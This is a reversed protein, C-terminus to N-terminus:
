KERTRMWLQCENGAVIQEHKASYNLKVNNDSQALGEILHLRGLVECLEVDVLNRKALCDSKWDKAPEV